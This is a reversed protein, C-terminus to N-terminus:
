KSKATYYLGWLSSVIIYSYYLRRTCGCSNRYCVSPKIIASLLLDPSLIQVNSLEVWLLQLGCTYHAAVTSQRSLHDASPYSHSSLTRSLLYLVVAAIVVAAIYFYYQQLSCTRSIWISRSSHVLPCLDYTERSMAAITCLLQLM